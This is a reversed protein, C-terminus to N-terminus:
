VTRSRRLILDSIDGIKKFNFIEEAPRKTNLAERDYILWIWRTRFRQLVEIQNKGWYLKRYDSKPADFMNVNFERINRRIPCFHVFEVEPNFKWPKIVEALPNDLVRIRNGNYTLIVRVM